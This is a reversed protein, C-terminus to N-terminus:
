VQPNALIYEGMRCPTSEDSEVQTFQYCPTEDYWPEDHIGCSYEGQKDGVLHKCKVGNGEHVILNDPDIGKKPDDVIVVLYHMCCHGCRLCRM